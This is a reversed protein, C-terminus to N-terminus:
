ATGNKSRYDAQYLQRFACKGRCIRWHCDVCHSDFVNQVSKPIALPATEQGVGTAPCLFLGAWALFMSPSLLNAFTSRSFSARLMLRQYEAHKEREPQFDKHLIEHNTKSDAIHVCSM